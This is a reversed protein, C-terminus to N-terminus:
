ILKYISTSIENINVETKERTYQVLLLIICEFMKARLHNKNEKIKKLYINACCLFIDIKTTVFKVIDLFAYYM